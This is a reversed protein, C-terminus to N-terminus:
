NPWFALRGHTKVILCGPRQLMNKYSIEDIAISVNPFLIERVDVQHKRNQQEITEANQKELMRISREIRLKTIVARSLMIEPGPVELNSAAAFEAAEGLNLIANKYTAITLTNQARAKGFTDPNHLTL